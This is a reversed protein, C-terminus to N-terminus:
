YSSAVISLGILMMVIISGRALAALLLSQWLLFGGITVVSAVVLVALNSCCELLDGLNVLFSWLTRPELGILGCVGAGLSGGVVVRVL